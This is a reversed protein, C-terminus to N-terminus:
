YAELQETWMDTWTQDWILQQSHSWVWNPTWSRQAARRIEICSAMVDRHGLKHLSNDNVSKDVFKITGPMIYCHDAGTVCCHARTVDAAFHELHLRGSVRNNSAKIVLTRTPHMISSAYSLAHWIKIPCDLSFASTPLIISGYWYRYCKNIAAAMINHDDCFSFFLLMEYEMINFINSCWYSWIKWKEM